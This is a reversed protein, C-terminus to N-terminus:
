RAQGLEICGFSQAQGKDWARRLKRICRRKARKCANKKKVAFAHGEISSHFKGQLPSFAAFTCQAAEAPRTMGATVLIAACAAATGLMLIRRM